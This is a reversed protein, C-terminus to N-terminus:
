KLSLVDKKYQSADKIYNQAVLVEGNLCRHVSLHIHDLETLVHDVNVGISNYQEKALEFTKLITGKKMLKPNLKNFTLM